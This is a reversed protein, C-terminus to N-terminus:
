ASERWAYCFGVPEVIHEVQRFAKDRFKVAFGASQLNRRLANVDGYEPHVELAIRRVRGLWPPSGSFLAFEGGEIDAKLFDVTQWGLTDFCEELNIQSGTEIGLERLCESAGVFGRLLIVRSALGADNLNAGLTVALEAQPEVALVEAGIAAAGVSFIGVNAGLDVVRDNMSICFGPARFYIRQGWLERVLGFDRNAFAVPHGEISFEFRGVGNALLRDAAGLSRKSVVEPLSQLIAFLYRTSLKFGGIRRVGLVSSLLRVLISKM